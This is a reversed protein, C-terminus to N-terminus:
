VRTGSIGGWEVIWIKGGGVVVVQEKEDGGVTVRVTIVAVDFIGFCLRIIDHYM